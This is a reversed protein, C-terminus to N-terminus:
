RDGGKWTDLIGKLKPFDGSLILALGTIYQFNRELWVQEGAAVMQKSAEPLCRHEKIYIMLPPESALCYAIRKARERDQWSHPNNKVLDELRLGYEDLMSLFDHVEHQAAIEHDVPVQM